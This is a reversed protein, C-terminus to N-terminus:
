YSFNPERGIENMERLNAFVDFATQALAVMAQETADPNIFQYLDVFASIFGERYEYMEDCPVHFFRGAQVLYINFVADFDARDFGREEAIGGLYERYREILHAYNMRRYREYEDTNEDANNPDHLGDEVDITYNGRQLRAYLEGFYDDHQDGPVRETDIQRVFNDGPQGGLALILSHVAAFELENGLCIDAGAEVDEGVGIIRHYADYVARFREAAQPDPNRDPHYRRILRFYAQRITEPDADPAVGLVEYPDRLRAQPAQVSRTWILATSHAISRGNGVQSIARSDRGLSNCAAFCKNTSM